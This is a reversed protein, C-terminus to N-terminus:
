NLFELWSLWFQLVTLRLWLLQFDCFLLLKLFPLIQVIFIDYFLQLYRYFAWLFPTSLIEFQFFSQWSLSRYRYRLFHSNKSAPYFLLNWIHRFLSDFNPMILWNWDRVSSSISYLFSYLPILLERNILSTFVIM